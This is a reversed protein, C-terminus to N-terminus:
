GHYVEKYLAEISCQREMRLEEAGGALIVNGKDLFIVEDLISELESVLHSTVILTSDERLSSVIVKLIKDRSVPDIGNLPEDLLYLGANRAMTVALKLRVKMGTSLSGVKMDENLEMEQLYELAKRRDFDAYMDQYFGLIGKVKMWHFLFDETPMFATHSRTEPGVPCGSIKVTGASPKNLGTLIKFLTTKGSGNPGFVGYVKGKELELTVNNLAQTRWFRKSVNQAEVIVTM